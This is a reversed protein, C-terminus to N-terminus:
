MGSFSLSCGTKPQFLDIDQNITTTVYKYNQVKKIGSTKEKTGMNGALQALQAHVKTNNNLTLPKNM